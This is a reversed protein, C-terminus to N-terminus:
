RLVLRGDQNVKVWYGKGSEITDAITYAADYGYYSSVVIGTPIQVISDTIAPHSISGIINWGNKVDVTDVNRLSGPISLSESTPFKLWYGPGNKLTDKPIYGLVQDFAYAASISSPFLLTKRYDSVTVPVSVLNWDQAVGVVVTPPFSISVDDFYGTINGTGDAGAQLSITDALCSDAFLDFYQVSNIWGKVNGSATRELVVHNWQNMPCNIPVMHQFGVYGACNGTIGGVRQGSCNTVYSGCTAWVGWGLGSWGAYVGAFAQRWATIYVFYEIRVYRSPTIYKFLAQNVNPSVTFKAAYAGSHTVTTSIQINSVSDWASFDGSEFGDSFQFQGHLPVVSIFAVSCIIVLRKM